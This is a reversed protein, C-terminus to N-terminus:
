DTKSKTTLNRIKEPLLEKEKERLERLFINQLYAISTAIKTYHKIAAEREIFGEVPRVPSGMLRKGTLVNFLELYGAWGLIPYENGEKL